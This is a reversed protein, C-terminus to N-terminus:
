LGWVSAKSNLAELSLFNLSKSHPMSDAGCFALQSTLCCTGLLQGKGLLAM